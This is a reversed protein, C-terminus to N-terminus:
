DNSDGNMEDVVAQIDNIKKNLNTQNRKIDTIGQSIKNIGSLLDEINPQNQLNDIVVEKIETTTVAIDDVNINDVADSILELKEMNELQTERARVQKLIDDDQAEIYTPM